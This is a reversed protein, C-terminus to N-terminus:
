SEALAADVAAVLERPTFPKQLVGRIGFALLAEFRGEDAGGTVVVIPIGRTEPRAALCRAVQEGSM